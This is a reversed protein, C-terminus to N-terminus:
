GKLSDPHSRDIRRGGFCHITRTGATFEGAHPIDKPIFCEEGKEVVFRQGGIILTYRGQVVIFYEDFAHVHEESKGDDGCVWYTMQRGDVGDYVWGEMGDPQSQSDIRNGVAKMFEPFDKMDEAEYGKAERVVVGNTRYYYQMQDPKERVPISTM